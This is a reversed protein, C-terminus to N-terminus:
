SIKHTELVLKKFASEDKRDEAIIEKVRRTHRGGDFSSNLWKKVIKKALEVDVVRAGLALVNADNHKKSYEASYLESVCAARVGPVKNAAISIGIGTGCIIIGLDFEHAAVAEGVKKGYIPYDTSDTADTGLDAVQYGLTKVYPILKQKLPYGAHDAGFAIKENGM